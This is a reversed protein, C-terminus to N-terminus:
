ARIKGAAIHWICLTEEMPNNESSVREGPGFARLGRRVAQKDVAYYGEIRAGNEPSEPGIPGGRRPSERRHSSRRLPTRLLEGLGPGVDIFAKPESRCGEPRM